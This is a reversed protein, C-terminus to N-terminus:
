RVVLAHRVFGGLTTLGILLVLVLVIRRFSKQEIKNLLLKGTYSGGFAVVLLAPVFWYSEAPLFGNRLYVIMRSFDVGSDIAASTAVFVNKELDFAGLALGRIAGGTGILGALFGALGGAGIANLANPSIKAKPRVLFFASFGILFLGLLLETFKFELRTSLYAGLVVLLTSPIGLLLLLRWQVHRGFLVLKAANSFVHLISTLALVTHFDFFFGALPVFFVSSGFGAITGIVESFLALILFLVASM